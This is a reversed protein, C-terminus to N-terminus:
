RIHRMRVLQCADLDLREHVSLILCANIEPCLDVANIQIVQSTLAVAPGKPPCIKKVYSKKKKKKKKAWWIVLELNNLIRQIRMFQQDELVLWSHQM